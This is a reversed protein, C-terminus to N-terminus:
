CHHSLLFTYPVGEPNDNLKVNKYTDTDAVLRQRRGYGFVFWCDSIATLLCAQWTM